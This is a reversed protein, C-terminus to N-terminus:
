DSSFKMILFFPFNHLVTEHTDVTTIMVCQYCLHVALNHSSGSVFNHCFDEMKTNEASKPLLVAWNIVPIMSWETGLGGGECTEKKPHVKNM